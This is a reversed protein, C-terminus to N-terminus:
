DNGDGKEYGLGRLIEHLIKVVPFALDLYKSQKFTM